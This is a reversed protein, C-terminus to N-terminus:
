FRVSVVPEFSWAFFDEEVLFEVIQSVKVNGKLIIVEVAPCFIYFILPGGIRSPEEDQSLLTM